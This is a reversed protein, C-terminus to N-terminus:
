FSLWRTRSRCVAAKFGEAGLCWGANGGAYLCSRGSRMRPENRPRSNARRAALRSTQSMDRRRTQAVCNRLITSVIRQDFMPSFETALGHPRIDPTNRNNEESGGRVM